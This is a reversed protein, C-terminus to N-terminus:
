GLRDIRAAMAHDNETLRGASHTTLTLRVKNWGHVLIDPHHNHQEAVDAVRNVFAIAAAFDAFEYDRVLTEGERRWAPEPTM